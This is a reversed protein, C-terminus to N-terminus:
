GVSVRYLEDLEDETLPKGDIRVVCRDSYARTLSGSSNGRAIAAGHRDACAQATTLSKHAHDCSGCVDGKTTYTTVRADM